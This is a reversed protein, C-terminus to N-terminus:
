DQKATLALVTFRVEDPDRAMFEKCVKAADVLLTASTTAGHTVPFSKRGDLEYLVGDKEIFAIFHHNVKEDAGPAATQGEHAVEEHTETFNSDCELLNGREEVSLGKAKEFYQQLVSGPKLGIDANNLVGHVLAITGCANHIVQKMYFLDDPYKPPNATLSENEKARHAEYADSCPFLLIVSKVPQPIIALLEPDLGWVDTINWKEDVGLKYM